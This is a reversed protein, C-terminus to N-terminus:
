SNARINSCILRVHWIGLRRIYRIYMIRISWASEEAAQSESLWNIWAEKAELISYNALALIILLCSFFVGYITTRLCVIIVLKVLKGGNIERM